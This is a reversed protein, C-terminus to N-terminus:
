CLYAVGRTCGTLRCFFFTQKRAYALTTTCWSLPWDVICLAVRCSLTEKIACSCCDHVCLNEYYTQIHKFCPQINISCFRNCTEKLWHDINITLTSGLYLNCSVIATIASCSRIFGNYGESHVNALAMCVTHYVTNISHHGQQFFLCYFFFVFASPSMQMSVTPGANEDGVTGDSCGRGPQPGGM